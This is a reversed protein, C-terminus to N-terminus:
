RWTNGRIEYDSRYHEKIDLLRYKASETHNICNERYRLPFSELDVYSDCITLQESQPQWHTDSKGSLVADTFEQINEYSGIPFNGQQGYKFFNYASEFRDVPDRVVGVVRWNSKKLEKVAELSLSSTNRVKFSNNIATSATKHTTAIIIGISFPIYLM